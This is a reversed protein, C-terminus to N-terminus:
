VLWDYQLKSKIILRCRQNDCDDVTFHTAKQNAADRCLNHQVDCSKKAATPFDPFTSGYVKYPRKSNNSMAIPPAVIGGLASTFMQLNSITRRTGPQLLPSLSDGKSEIRMSSALCLSLNVLFLIFKLAPASIFMQSRTSLLRCRHSSSSDLYFSTISSKSHFFFITKSTALM